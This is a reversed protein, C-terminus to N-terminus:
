QNTVASRLEDRQDASMARFTANHRELYETGQYFHLQLLHRCYSGLEELDLRTALQFFEVVNESHIYDTGYIINQCAVSLQPLGYLHALELLATAQDCDCELTDTYLFRLLLEVLSPEDASLDIERRRGEAMGISLMKRFYESRAALVCRHVPRPPPGGSLKVVCDAYDGRRLARAFDSELSPARGPPPMEYRKLLREFSAVDDAAAGAPAEGTYLFELFLQVAPGDEVDMDVTAQDALSRIGLKSELGPCRSAIVVRHVPVTRGGPLRVGVDSFEGRRLLEGFDHMLSPRPPDDAPPRLALRRTADLLPPGEAAHLFAWGGCGVGHRRGGREM